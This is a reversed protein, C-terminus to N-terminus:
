KLTLAVNDQAIAAIAPAKSAMLTPLRAGQEKSFAISVKNERDCFSRIGATMERM